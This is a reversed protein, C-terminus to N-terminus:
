KDTGAKDVRDPSRITMRHGHVYSLFQSGSSWRVIRVAFLRFGSELHYSIHVIVIFKVPLKNALPDFLKPFLDFTSNFSRQRFLFELRKAQHVAEVKLEMGVHKPHCNGVACEIAALEPLQGVDGIAPVLSITVERCTLIDLEVPWLEPVNRVDEICQRIDVHM